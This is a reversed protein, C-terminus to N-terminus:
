ENSFYKQYWIVEKPLGEEPSTKPNYGLIEKAKHINAATEQQDGNRPPVIEILAKKGLTKEIIAIGEGTTIVMDSGINFIEGLVNERKELVLLCANIIDEVYTYSRRHTDSGKHLPFTKNTSISKILKHFLKEPREREGYVSFLRLSVVPLKFERYYSLTLQEAALKTVGYPSTPKPETKEDGGAQAGYVSSTSINVFLKLHPSEQVADLLRHTATINNRVFTDFPVKKSIGPQAAFHYIVEVDQVIDSIDDVALDRTYVICGSNEVQTKNLEKLERSYYDTLCDIGIVEHGQHVLREAVHSGIAGAAGTVLIKM